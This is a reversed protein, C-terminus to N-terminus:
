KTYFNCLLDKLKNVISNKQNVNQINLDQILRRVLDIRKKQKGRGCMENFTQELNKANLSSENKNSTKLVAKDVVQSSKNNKNCEILLILLDKVLDKLNNNEHNENSEMSEKNQEIQESKEEQNINEENESLDTQQNQSDDANMSTDIQDIFTEIENKILNRISIQLDQNQNILDAFTKVDSKDNKKLNSANSSSSSLSKTSSKAVTKTLKTRKPVPEFIEENESLEEDQEEESNEEQELDEYEEENLMDEDSEDMYRDEQDEIEENVQEDRIKNSAGKETEDENIVLKVSKTTFNELHEKYNEYNIPWLKCVQFSDSMKNKFHSVSSTNLDEKDKIIDESETNGIEEICNQFADM